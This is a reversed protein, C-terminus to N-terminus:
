STKSRRLWSVVVEQSPSQERCKPCGDSFTVQAGDIMGSRLKDALEQQIAPTLFACFTGLEAPYVGCRGACEFFFSKSRLLIM